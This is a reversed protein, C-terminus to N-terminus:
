LQTPISQSFRFVNNPDYRRKVQVLRELNEGYYARLYNDQNRDVFNQFSEESTYMAMDLHFARQWELLASEEAPVMATNWSATCTTLFRAGRHCYATDTRGLQDIQGGTLFLNWTASGTQGPWRKLWDFVAALAQDSIDSYAYRSSEQSYEPLGQESLFTQADWYRELRIDETTPAAIQYVPALISRVDDPSGYYQGLLFISLPQSPTVEAAALLGMEKPMLPALKLLAALVEEQKSHWEIQFVTVKDVPFTQFTMSTNIGFNGGGGGRCAWFLDANSSENCVLTEGNATVVETELLRDCTLGKSRMSFGIGGGLTLGSVGVGVCRGHTIAADVQLLKERAGANRVGGALRVRGSSPDFDVQNLSSVDILLGETNSFGAFSHGGSRVAFPVQYNQAWLLSERVDSSNLCVSVGLPQTKAFRLNWALARKLYGDQGPQLLSGSLRRALVQLPGEVSGAPISDSPGCGTLTAAGIGAVYSLFQRRSASFM